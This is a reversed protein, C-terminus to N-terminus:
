RPSSVHGILEGPALLETHQGGAGVRDDLGVEVLHVDGAHGREEAADVDVVRVQRGLSLHLLQADLEVLRDVVGDVQDAGGLDVVHDHAHRGLGEPVALRAVLTELLPDLLTDPPSSTAV